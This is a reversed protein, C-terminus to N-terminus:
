NIKVHSGNKNWRVLDTDAPTDLTYYSYDVNADLWKYQARTFRLMSLTPHMTEHTSKINRNAAFAGSIIEITKFKNGFTKAKGDVEWLQKRMAPGYLDRLIPLAEAQKKSIAKKYAQRAAEQDKSLDLSAGDDYITAWANLMAVGIAITEIDKGYDKAKFSPISKTESTVREIYEVAKDEKPTVAVVDNTASAVQSREHIPPSSNTVGGVFIMALAVIFSLASYKLGGLASGRSSSPLLRIISVAFWAMSALAFFAGAMMLKDSM